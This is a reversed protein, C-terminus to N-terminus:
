PGFVALFANDVATGADADAGVASITGLAIGVTGQFAGGVAVNGLADVAIASGRQPGAARSRKGTVTDSESNLKAIFIDGEEMVDGPLELGNIFITGTASGTFVINGLADTVVSSATDAGPSGFTKAWVTGGEPGLNAVFIDSGSAAPTGTINLTGEFTGLAILNGNKGPALSSVRHPTAGGADDGFVKSWKVDIGEKQGQDQFAIVFGDDGGTSTITGGSGLGPITGTFSGGVYFHGGAGLTISTAVQSMDDGLRTSWDHIGYRNFRAVFIDPATNATGSSLFTEGDNGLDLTGTFHGTVYIADTVPDIAVGTAYQNGQAGFGDSSGDNGFGFSWVHGGKMPEFKAMFIHQFEDGAQLTKDGFQVNSGFSGVLVIYNFRDVAVAYPVQSGPSGFSKGWLLTGTPSFKALFIDEGGATMYLDNDSLKATGSFRGAVIVNGDNDFAVSTVEQAGSTGFTKPPWNGDLTCVSRRDCNEDIDSTECDEITAVARAECARDFTYDGVGSVANCGPASAGALGVCAAWFWAM